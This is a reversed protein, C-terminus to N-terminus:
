RLEEVIIETRYSSLRWLWSAVTKVPYEVGDVVLIDGERIDPPADNTTLSTVRLEHPANTGVREAMDPSVPRLPWISLNTLHTAAAGRKGNVIAPSRKTSATIAARRAYSGM